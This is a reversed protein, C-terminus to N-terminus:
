ERLKLTITRPSVRVDVKQGAIFGADGLWKGVLRISPTLRPDNKRVTVLEFCQGATDDYWVADITLKRPPTSMDKRPM